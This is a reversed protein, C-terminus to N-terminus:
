RAGGQKAAAQLMRVYNVVDWRDTGRIKDGYRPMLGRGMTRADTIVGYLEGDALKAAAADTLDRVGIYPGGVASSIPGDGKGKEGHCVLCYTEYEFKGRNISESTRTRPNTIRAATTAESVPGRGTVPITGEVPPLPMTYPKISRQDVMASFWSFRHIVTEPKCAAAAVVSLAIVAKRV